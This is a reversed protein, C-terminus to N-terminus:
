GRGRERTKRVTAYPPFMNQCNFFINPGFGL